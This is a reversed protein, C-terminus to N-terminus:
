GERLSDITRSQVCYNLHRHDESLNDSLGLMYQSLM